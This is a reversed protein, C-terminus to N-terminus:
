KLAEPNRQPARMDASLIRRVPIPERFPATRPSRPTTARAMDAPLRDVLKEVAIELDPEFSNRVRRTLLGQWIRSRGTVEFLALALHGTEYTRLESEFSQIRFTGASTFSSIEQVGRNIEVEVLEREIALAYDVLFDPRAQDRVFGRAHLALEILGSLRERVAREDSLPARIPSASRPLWDWTGYRSFDTHEDVVVHVTTSCAVLTALAIWAFFAIRWM